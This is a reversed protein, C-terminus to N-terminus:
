MAMLQEYGLAEQPIWLGQRWFNRIEMCMADGLWESARTSTDQKCEAKERTKGNKLLWAYWELAPSVKPSNTRLAENFNVPISLGRPDLDGLYEAGYGQVEKLVQELAAGSRRFAEGAGYVVAAYRKANHNWEGFSWFSNHNELILIPKGPADAVRYPLPPPVQFAGISALSLLGGFMFGDRCLSDLRKEDGFIELSREKMPVTILSDRRRLLFDNILKADQLQGYTALQPWFGLEPVWPVMKFSEFDVREKHRVLTVWKPLPPSGMKEWSAAAPFSIVGLSELEKLGSLLQGARDPRNQVEPYLTYFGAKLDDLAIRKRPSSSLHVAFLKTM